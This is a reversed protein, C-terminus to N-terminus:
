VVEALVVDAGQRRATASLHDLMKRAGLDVQHGEIKPETSLVTQVQQSLDSRTGVHRDDDNRTVSTVIDITDDAELKAGVVIHGLREIQAFQKRADAGHQPPERERVRAWAGREA